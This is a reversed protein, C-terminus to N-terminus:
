FDADLIRAISLLSHGMSKLIHAQASSLSGLTAMTPDKRLIAPILWAYMQDEFPYNNSIEHAALDRFVQVALEERGTQLYLNYWIVKYKYTLGAPRM